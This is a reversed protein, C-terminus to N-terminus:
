VKTYQNEYAFKVSTVIKMFDKEGLMKEHSYGESLLYPMLRSLDEIIKDAHDAKARIKKEVFEKASVSFDSKRAIFIARVCIYITFFLAVFYLGMLIM